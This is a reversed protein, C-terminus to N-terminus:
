ASGAAVAGVSRVDRKRLGRLINGLQEIGRRMAPIDTAAAGIVLAPPMAREVTLRSLPVAVIGQEAALRSAEVEPIGEALWGVTQLGATVPSLRLVDGLEQQAIRVLADHRRTYLDRMRRM